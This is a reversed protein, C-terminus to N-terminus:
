YFMSPKYHYVHIDIAKLDETKLPTARMFEPRVPLSIGKQHRQLYIAVQEETKSIDPNSDGVTSFSREHETSKAPNFATSFLQVTPHLKTCGFQLQKGAVFALNPLTRGFIISSQNFM